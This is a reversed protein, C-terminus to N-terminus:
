PVVHVEPDLLVQKGNPLTVAVTYKFKKGVHAKDVVTHTLVHRKSKPHHHGAQFPHRGKEFEISDITGEGSLFWHVRHKDQVSVRVNEPHVALTNGEVRISVPQEDDLDHSLLAM